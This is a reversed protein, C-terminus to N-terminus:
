RKNKRSAGSIAEKVIQLMATESKEPQITFPMFEEIKRPRENKGRWRNSMIAAIIASRLDAREEGWPEISYYALWDTLEGSTLDLRSPHSM